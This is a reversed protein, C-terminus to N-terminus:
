LNPFIKKFDEETMEGIKKELERFKFQKEEFTDLTTGDPILGYARREDLLYQSSGGAREYLREQQKIDDLITEATATLSAIVNREGRLLPFVKVLGKAMEIDKQTLRDKSKLSNALKYVLVTENIALREYDLANGGKLRKKANSLSSRRNKEFSGLTRDLYNLAQQKNDYVGDSVLDAAATERQLNFMAKGAAKVESVNDGGVKVFDFVDGLAETVRGGYLGFAGTVGAQAEGKEIIGLSRNILNVAAYKGAISKALDLTEKNQDANPIFNLNPDVTQFINLGNADKKGTNIQKTGDKLVRGAVNVTRGVENTYQIVGVEKTDPMEFAQNQAKLFDTSFELARGLLNQEIEDEKMKVMVMNNVAPGLAAGFVELAGGLGSKKTTGTLLGSALNSLFVMKAQSTKGQRMEKAIQRALDLQAKFPSNADITDGNAADGGDGKGKKKIKDKEDDLDALPVKDPDEPLTDQRQFQELDPIANEAIKSTDIVNSKGIKTTNDSQTAIDVTKDTQGSEGRKRGRKLKTETDLNVIDDLKKPDIKGFQQNFQDDDLYSMGFQMSKSKHAALEEPTMNKIREREKSGAYMLYAPGAILGASVAGPLSALGPLAKTALYSGGFGAATRGIPDNIGMAQAVKDGAYFGGIAPISFLGRGLSKAGTGMREFFTPQKRLTVGYNYPTGVPVGIPSGQPILAPVPPRMPGIISRGTRAKIPKLHGKRLAERRFMPRNLIRNLSV